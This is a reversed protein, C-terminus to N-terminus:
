PPQAEEAPVAQADERGEGGGFYFFSPLQPLPHHHCGLLRLHVHEDVAELIRQRTPASRRLPSICL